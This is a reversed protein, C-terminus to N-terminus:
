ANEKLLVSLNDRFSKLSLDDIISVSLVPVKLTKFVKKAKELGKGDTTDAKTLVVVEPKKLLAKDYAALEERVATYTKKVDSEELSVCHLLLKTRRIHRLFKYGLGKGESAGEILGPIDALIFGYFSGLNPDLTTFAYSGVKARANTLENLLSTKGANPLGIFGADAILRLEVRFSGKEGPEGPTAEMPTVNRSGKFHENGFGGRGGKLIIREEGEKVLEFFEKTKTNTIVSGVPVDVLSTTGNKGHKSKGMGNAGKEALFTTQGVYRSLAGIDRVARVAVDGGRGGDGGSPGSYEKGKLHLWRVVGDGGRGAKATLTLEDVFAM